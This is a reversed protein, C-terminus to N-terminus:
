PYSPLEQRAEELLAMADAVCNAVGAVGGFAQVARIFAKQDDSVVGLKPRKCEIALFRGHPPVICILDSVGRGLGTSLNRNDVNHVWVGCGAAVLAKRVEAKVDRELPPRPRKKVDPPTYERHKDCRSLSAIPTRPCGPIECAM